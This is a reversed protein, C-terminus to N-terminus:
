PDKREKWQYDNRREQWCGLCVWHYAADDTYGERDDGEYSSIKQWCLECHEHDNSLSPVFVQQHLTKNMM